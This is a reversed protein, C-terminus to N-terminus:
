FKYNWILFFLSRQQISSTWANLLMVCDRDYSLIFRMNHKDCTPTDKVLSAIIINILFIMLIQSM